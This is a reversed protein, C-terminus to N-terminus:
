VYIIEFSYDGPHIKPVLCERETFREGMEINGTGVDGEAILEKSGYRYMRWKIFCEQDDDTISFAKIGSVYFTVDYLSGSEELSYEVKNLEIVAPEEDATVGRTEVPFRNQFHIRVPPIGAGPATSDAM